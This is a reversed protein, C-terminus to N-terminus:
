KNSHGTTKKNFVPDKFRVIHSVRSTLNEKKEQTQQNPKTQDNCPRQVLSRRLDKRVRHKEQCVHRSEFNRYIYTTAKLSVGYDKFIHSGFPYFSFLSAPFDRLGWSTMDATLLLVSLLPLLPPSTHVLPYRGRHRCRQLWFCCNATLAWIRSIKTTLIRITWLPEQLCCALQKLFTHM